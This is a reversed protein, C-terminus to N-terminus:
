AKAYIVAGDKITTKVQNVGWHYVLHYHSPADLIVADCRKGVELSGISEALGLSAAGNLTSATIAEAISMRMYLCALAMTMPMSECFSSGPNFDTALLVPVGADILKRAPPYEEIMLFFVCGPLLGAVTGAEAMALVGDDSIFELHDASVAKLGAAMEAGGLPTLQDVHVRLELGADLAAQLIRKSTEVDFVGSETFIDCYDALGEEAVAPIMENIVLDAYKRMSDEVDRYEPPVEHAGLFTPIITLAHNEALRRITRLMKLETETELGYGSKIEVTTTGHAAMSDLRKMALAFLNDESAARTARVTSLIGGGRKAIDAYTHGKLRLEFEEARDGAFVTHTHPDVFGPLLTGGAADVRIGGDILEVSEAAEEATGVFVIEGEQAAICGGPIIRLNEMDTGTQAANGQPTALEVAGEILLDAKVM